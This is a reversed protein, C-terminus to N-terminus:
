TVQFRNVSYSSYNQSDTSYIAIQSQCWEGTNITRGYVNDYAANCQFKTGGNTPSRMLITKINGSMQSGSLPRSLYLIIVEESNDIARDVNVELAVGNRHISTINIPPPLATLIPSSLLYPQFLGNDASLAYRVTNIDIFIQHGSVNLTPNRKQKRGIYLAYTSWLLRQADTLSQWDAQVSSLGIRQGNSRLTNSNIKGSQNRIILGGQNRQFVSGNIKGRIDSIIGSTVIRAM